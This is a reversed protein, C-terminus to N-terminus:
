ICYLQKFFTSVRRMEIDGGFIPIFDSFNKADFCLLHWRRTYFFPVPHQEYTFLLYLNVILLYFASKPSVESDVTRVAASRRPNHQLAIWASLFDLLNGSHCRRRYWEHLSDIPSRPSFKTVRLRSFPSQKRWRWRFKASAYFHFKDGFKLPNKDTECKARGIQASKM